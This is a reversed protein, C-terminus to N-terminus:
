DHNMMAQAFKKWNIGSLGVKGGWAVAKNRIKDKFSVEDDNVNLNRSRVEMYLSHGYCLVVFTNSAKETYFHAITNHRANPPVTPHVTICLWPVPSEQEEVNVVKVWDYGQGAANGPGPISIRIYNNQSIFGALEKGQSDYLHFKVRLEPAYYQWENVHLLKKRLIEYRLQAQHEDAWSKSEVIDEQKGKFQTPILPYQM